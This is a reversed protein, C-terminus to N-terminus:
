RGLVPWHVRLEERYAGLLADLRAAPAPKIPAPAGGLLVSVVAAGAAAIGDLLYGGELAVVVRGRASGSAMALCVAMLYSYGAPSLEM